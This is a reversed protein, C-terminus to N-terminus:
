IAGIKKLYAFNDTHGRFYLQHREMDSIKTQLNFYESLTKHEEASLSIAAEGEILAPIFPNDTQMATLRGCLEAYESNNAKMDVVIDSEIELFNEEIRRPLDYYNDSLM